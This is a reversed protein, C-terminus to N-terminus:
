KINVEFTLDSVWVACFLKGILIEKTFKVLDATEQSNQWM